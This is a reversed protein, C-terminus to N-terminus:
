RTNCVVFHIIVNHLSIYVFALQPNVKLGEIMELTRSAGSLESDLQHM